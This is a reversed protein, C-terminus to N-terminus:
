RLGSIQDIPVEGMADHLQDRSMNRGRGEFLFGNALVQIEGSNSSSNYQEKARNGEFEFTREIETDTERDVEIGFGYGALAAFPIGALDTVTLDFTGEGGQYEAEARTTTMGGLGERASEISTRDMGAISEPIADRLAEREVPEYDTNDANGMANGLAEGFQGMADAFDEGGEEFAESMEEAADELDRAAQEEPSPGCAAFPLVLLGLAALTLVHKM